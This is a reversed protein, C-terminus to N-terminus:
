NHYHMKTKPKKTKFSSSVYVLLHCICWLQMCIFLSVFDMRNECLSISPHFIILTHLAFWFAFTISLQRASFSTRNTPYSICKWKWKTFVQFAFKVEGVFWVLVLLFVYRIVTLLLLEIIAWLVLIHLMTCKLIYEELRISHSIGNKHCLIYMQIFYDIQKTSLELKTNKSSSNNWFKSTVKFTM